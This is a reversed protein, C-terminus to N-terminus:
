RPRRAILAFPTAGRSAPDLAFDLQAVEHGDAVLTLALREIEVRGLGRGDAPHDLTGAYPLLHVAVGGPRLWPMAGRVMPPFRDPASRWADISWIADFPERMAPLALRDFLTLHVAEAYRRPSCLDPDHWRELTVGPDAEGLDEPRTVAVLTTGGRGAFYSPLPHARTVIGLGRAADLDVGYHRLAQLIIAHGWREAPDGGDQRLAASWAAVLPDRLQAATMAQSVPRALQPVGIVALEPRGAREAPATAVAPPAVREVPADPLPPAARARPDISLSLASARADTADDITGGITCGMNRRGVLDVHLLGGHAALEHLPVTLELLPMPAPFPPLAPHSSLARVRVTLTGRTASLGHFHLTFRNPGLVPYIDLSQFVYGPADGTADGGLGAVGSALQPFAAFPDIPLFSLQDPVAAEDQAATM